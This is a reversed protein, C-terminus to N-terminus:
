ALEQQPQKNFNNNLMDEILLKTYQIIDIEKHRHTHGLHFKYGKWSDVVNIGFLTITNRFYGDITVWHKELKLDSQRSQNGVDIINSFM